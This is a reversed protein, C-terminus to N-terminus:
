REEIITRRTTISSQITENTRNVVGSFRLAPNIRPHQRMMINPANPTPIRIGLKPVAMRLVTTIIALKIRKM